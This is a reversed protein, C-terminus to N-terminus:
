SKKMRTQCGSGNRRTSSPKSHPSVPPRQARFTGHYDLRGALFAHRRLALAFGVLQGLQRTANHTPHVVARCRSVFPRASVIVSLAQVKYIELFTNHGLELQLSAVRKPFFKACRTVLIVVTRRGPGLEDYLM